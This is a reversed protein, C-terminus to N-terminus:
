FRSRVNIIPAAETPAPEAPPPGGGNGQPPKQAKRMDEVVTRAQGIWALLDLPNDAAPALKKISEPWDKIEAVLQEKLTEALADAQEAKPKLAELEKGRAEALEQWKSEEELRQEQLAKAEDAAKKQAVRSAAAEERAERIEKQAWEPLSEMGSAPEQGKAPEQGAPLQQNDGEQPEGEAVPIEKDKEM